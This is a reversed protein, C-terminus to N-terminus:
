KARHLFVACIAIAKFTRKKPSLPKSARYGIRAIAANITKESNSEDSSLGIIHSKALKQEYSALLILLYKKQYGLDCRMSSERVFKAKLYRIHIALGKCEKNHQTKL